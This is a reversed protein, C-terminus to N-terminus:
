MGAHASLLFSALPDDPAAAAHSHARCIHLLAEGRRADGFHVASYGCFLTFAHQAALANWMEELHLAAGYDNRAALLDVMEGYARVTHGTECLASLMDGVHQDFLAPDLRNDRTLADLTAAADRVILVESRIAAAADVGNERLRRNVAHWRQEEVVVIVTDGARLGEAVFSAIQQIRSEVSDFLRLYHSGPSTAPAPAPPTM